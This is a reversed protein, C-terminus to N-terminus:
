KRMDDIYAFMRLIFVVKIQSVDSIIFNFQIGGFKLLYVLIKWYWNACYLGTKWVGLISMVYMKIGLADAM